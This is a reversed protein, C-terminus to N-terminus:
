RLTPLCAGHRTRHGGITTVVLVAGRGTVLGRDPDRDRDRRPAVPVLMPGQGSVRVLRVAEPATAMRDRVPTIAIRPGPGTVPIRRMATAPAESTGVARPRRTSVAPRGEVHDTPRATIAPHTRTPHAARVGNPRGM